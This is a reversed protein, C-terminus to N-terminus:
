QNTFDGTNLRPRPREGFIYREDNHISQALAQMSAAIQEPDSPLYGEEDEDDCDINEKTGWSPVSIPVSTSYVLKNKKVSPSTEKVVTREENFDDDEDEEDSRYFPEESHTEMGDLLFMGDANQDFEELSQRRQVPTSKTRSLPSRQQSKLKPKSREPTKSISNTGKKEDKSKVKHAELLIGIMKKKQKRVKEQLQQFSAKQEDEYQKIRNEMESEEQLIYNSLQEQVVNVVDQLSEFGGSTRDPMGIYTSEKEPLVLEFVESYNPSQRLREIVAPDYQINQSILLKSSRPKTAYVDLGCNLCRHVLWDGVHHRHVLYDQELTIGPDCVEVQLVKYPFFPSNEGSDSLFDFTSTNPNQKINVKVNLCNCTILVM